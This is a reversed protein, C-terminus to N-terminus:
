MRSPTGRRMPLSVAGNGEILEDSLMWLSFLHASIVSLRGPRTPTSRM